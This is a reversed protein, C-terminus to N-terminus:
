LEARERRRRLRVGLDDGADERLAERVRENTGEGKSDQARGARRRSVARGRGGGQGAVAWTRGCSKRASVHVSAWRVCRDAWSPWASLNAALKRMTRGERGESPERGQAACLGASAGRRRATRETWPAAAGHGASPPRQARRWGRRPRRGRASQTRGGGRWGTELEWGRQGAGRSGRECGRGAVPVVEDLLQELAAARARPPAHVVEHARLQEREGAVLIARVDDALCCLVGLQAHTPGRGRRGKGRQQAVQQRAVRM